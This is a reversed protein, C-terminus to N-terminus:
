PFTIVPPDYNGQVPKQTGGGSAAIVGIIVALLIVGAGVGAWLRWDTVLSGDDPGREAVVVPEAVEAVAAAAPAIPLDVSSEEGAGVDVRQEAVTEGDRRAVVDHAGAAVRMAVGLRDPALDVEDLQVAVRDTDGSLTVTLRGVHQAVRELLERAPGRVSEPTEGNALVGDTLDAAEVYQNLEFLVSALNFEIAPAARLSLAQRFREEAEAYRGQEALGVGEHFLARARETDDEEQAVAVSATISLVLAVTWTALSRPM